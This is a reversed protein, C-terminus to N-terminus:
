VLVLLFTFTIHLFFDNFDTVEVLRLQIEVEMILTVCGVSCCVCQDFLATVSASESVRPFLIFIEDVHKVCELFPMSLCKHTVSVSKWCMVSLTSVLIVIFYQKESEGLFSPQLFVAPVQHM